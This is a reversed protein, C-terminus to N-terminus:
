TDSNENDVLLIPIGNEIKYSNKKDKTILRNSRKDFTLKGGTRPCQIFNLIDEDFSNNSM